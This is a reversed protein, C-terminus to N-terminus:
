TQRCVYCALGSVVAAITKLVLVDAWAFFFLFIISYYYHPSLFKYFALVFM